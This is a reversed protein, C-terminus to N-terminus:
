PVQKVHKTGEKINLKQTVLWSDLGPMEAYTWSVLDRLEQLLALVPLRLEASLNASM